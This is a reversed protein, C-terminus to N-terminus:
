EFKQLQLSFISGLSGTRGGRGESLFEGLPAVQIFKSKRVKPM